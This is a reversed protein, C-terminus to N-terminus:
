DKLYSRLIESISLQPVHASILARHDAIAQAVCSATSGQLPDQISQFWIYTHYCASIPTVSTNQIICATIYVLSTTKPILTQKQMSPCRKEWLFFNFKFLLKYVFVIIIMYDSLQLATQFWHFLHISSLSLPFLFSFSLGDTFICLM